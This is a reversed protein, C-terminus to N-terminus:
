TGTTIHYRTVRDARYAPNELYPDRGQGFRTVGGEPHMKRSRPGPMLCQQGFM